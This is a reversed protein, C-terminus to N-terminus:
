GFILSLIAIILAIIGILGFILGLLVCIGLILMMITSSASGSRIILMVGVFITM